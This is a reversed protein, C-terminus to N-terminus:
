IECDEAISIVSTMQRASARIIPFGDGDGVSVKETGISFNANRITGIEALMLRAALVCNFNKGQTIRLGQDEDNGPVLFWYGAPNRVVTMTTFRDLGMIAAASKTCRFEGRWAVLVSPRSRHNQRKYQDKKSFVRMSM